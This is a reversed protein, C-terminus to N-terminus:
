CCDAEVRVRAASKSNAMKGNVENLATIVIEMSLPGLATTESGTTTVSSMMASSSSITTCNVCGTVSM